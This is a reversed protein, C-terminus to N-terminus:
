VTRPVREKRRPYVISRRWIAATLTIVGAMMNKPLNKIQREVNTM